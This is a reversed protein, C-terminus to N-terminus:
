FALISLLMALDYLSFLIFFINLWISEPDSSADFLESKMVYFLIVAM